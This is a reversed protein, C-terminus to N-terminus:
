RTSLLAHRVGQRIINGCEIGLCGPRRNLDDSVAWAALGQGRQGRDARVGMIQPLDRALATEQLNYSPSDSRMSVFLSAGGLQM